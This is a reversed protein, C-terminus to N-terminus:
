FLNEIRGFMKENEKIKGSNGAVVFCEDEMFADVYKALSRIKEPTTALLEDREKQLDEETVGSLWAEKSFSGKASPTM